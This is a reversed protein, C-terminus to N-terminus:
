NSLIIRLDRVNTGTPGTVIVDGLREFFSYSDSRSLYEHADLGLARARSITTKDAIAGAALSNGDIGDTGCSLVIIEGDPPNRDIEIACRLVTELNRGGKGDGRVTCSFEGGSILCWRQENTHRALHDLLLESGQQVPQEIIEEDIVPEFSNASAAAAAAELATRNQLLVYYPSHSIKQTRGSSTIASLVSAPLQGDLQYRSIVQIAEPVALTPALTPGSAVSAEDGQNTDSVILTIAQANPVARALGGGKVASFARRVVNIEFISAGSTVLIQNANKLDELSIREDIPMEVMASGGGSVMFIVPAHEANVQALLKFIARASELSHQDPLPHGGTLLQWNKLSNTVPVPAEPSVSIGEVVHNSIADDIGLAMSLAAKGISVVYPRASILQSDLVFLEGHHLKIANRTAARADVAALASNFISLALLHLESRTNL